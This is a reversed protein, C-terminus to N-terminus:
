EGKKLLAIDQHITGRHQLAKALINYQEDTLYIEGLSEKNINSYINYLSTKEIYSSQTINPIENRERNM